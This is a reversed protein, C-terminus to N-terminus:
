LLSMRKCVVRSKNVAVMYIQLLTSSNRARPCCNSVMDQVNSLSDSWRSLISLALPGQAEIPKAFLASPELHFSRMELKAEIYYNSIIGTVYDQSQSFV